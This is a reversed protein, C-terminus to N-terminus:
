PRVLRAVFTSPAMVDVGRDRARKTLRADSTVLVAGHTRATLALLADKAHRPNDATLEAYDDLDEWGFLTSEDLRSVDLVVGTTAVPEGALRGRVAELRAWQEPDSTANLEDRLIHTALIRVRGEVKARVVSELDYLNDALYDLVNSDLLVALPPLAEM